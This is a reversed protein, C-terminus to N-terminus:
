ADTEEQKKKPNPQNKLLIWTKGIQFAECKGQRCLKKIHDQSLGWLKHAEETGMLLEQFEQIKSIKM